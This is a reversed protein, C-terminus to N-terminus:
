IWGRRVAEAVAQTRNRVGLREVLEQIRRKVTVESLALRAAIESTTAGAAVAALVQLAEHDLGSEARIRGQAQHAVTDFLIPLLSPSIVREGRAVARIAGIISGYDSGKVLYGQAGAEVAARVQAAEEYSSLVVCAPRRETQQLQRLAALGGGNPMRLDLLVVDPSTARVAELLAQADAVAGVWALDTERAIMGHLGERVVPHDDAVLVRISM